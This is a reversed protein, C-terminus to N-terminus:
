LNRLIKALENLSNFKNDSIKVGNPKFESIIKRKLSYYFLRIFDYNDFINRKLYESKFIKLSKHRDQLQKVAEAERTQKGEFIFITKNKQSINDSEIFQRPLYPHLLISKLGIKYFNRALNLARDFEVEDSM